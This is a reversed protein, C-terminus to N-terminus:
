PCMSLPFIVQVSTARDNGVHTGSMSEQDDRFVDCDGRFNADSCVKVCTDSGVRISSISDNGLGVEATTPYEGVDKVIYDCAVQSSTFINCPDNFNAGTFLVVQGPGPYKGLHDKRQVRISSARDNWTGPEGAPARRISLYPLGRWHIPDHPNYDADGEDPGELVSIYDPRPKAFWWEWFLDIRVHEGVKLSSV